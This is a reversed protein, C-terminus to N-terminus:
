RALFIFWKIDGRERCVQLVGALFSNHISNQGKNM